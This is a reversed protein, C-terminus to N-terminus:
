QFPWDKMFLPLCTFLVDYRQRRRYTPIQRRRSQLLIIIIIFFFISRLIFRKKKTFPFFTFYVNNGTSGSNVRPKVM